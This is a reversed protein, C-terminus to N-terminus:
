SAAVDLAAAGDDAPLVPLTSLVAGGAGAPSPAQAWAGHVGGGDTAVVLAVPAGRTGTLSAAAVLAERGAGLRVPVPTGAGGDAGLPIVTAGTEEASWLSLVADSAGYPLPLLGAGGLEPTQGAIAFEVPAGITDGPLDQGVVTSRVAADVAGDATVVATLDGDGTGALPVSVVAGPAVEIGERHAAAIPGGTGHVDVAASVASGGPNRLVLVPTQGPAVHVAPIVQEPASPPLPALIEGGGPTLGSRETTQLHMALPAGVTEVSVGLAEQGPAVSELLLRETTGPAVVIRSSGALDAPGDPTSVQIAATAPRTGPNTLVLASSAGADTGAGLFSASVVPESCRSLSLSRFDGAPTLAAQGAVAALGSDDVPEAAVQVPGTVAPAAFSTDGYAGSAIRAGAAPADGASMTVSPAPATGDSALQTQAGSARGFLLSSSGTLAAGRVAAQPSPPIVALAADGGASLLEDPVTLPGPCLLDASRPPATATAATLDEASPVPLQALLVGAGVLPLLSLVALVPRVTRRSM